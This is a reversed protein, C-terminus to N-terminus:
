EAMNRSLRPDLDLATKVVNDCSAIVATINKVRRLVACLKEAQKTCL